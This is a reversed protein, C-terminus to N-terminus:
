KGDDDSISVTANQSEVIVDIDPSSLRVTFMEDNELTLDNIINISICLPSGSADPQFLITDNLPSYDNQVLFTLFTNFYQAENLLTATSRGEATGDFTTFSVPVSRAIQGDFLACVQVTELEEQAIYIGQQM